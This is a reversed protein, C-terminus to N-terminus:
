TKDVYFLLIIIIIIIIIIITIIIIIIIIAQDCGVILFSLTQYPTSISHGSFVVDFDIIIHESIIM